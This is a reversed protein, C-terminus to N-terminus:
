TLTIELNASCYPTYALGLPNYNELLRLRMQRIADGVNYLSLLKFFGHAFFTALVEPISIETGIVGGAQCYSLTENFRLLDDPTIDVTHCGNIFVLPHVIPWDVEWGLLDSPILREGEGVGLWTKSGSRGGHCYFYIIPADIRQLGLGIAQKTSRYDISTGAQLELERRHKDVHNLKLSVAMVIGDKRGNVKLPMERQVGDSGSIKVSLPQEIIHKFGWFGSPCVVNANEHYPCGQSICQQKEIYGSQGGARLDSLFQPCVENDGTVLRQDYVLAWPFVYKASKTSSIQITSASTSLVERLGKKFSRDNKTLIESHLGYGFEALQKLDKIFNKETGRNDTGFRYPEARPGMPAGCVAQLVNRVEEVAGSLEGEGLDMEQILNTGVVFFTHTGDGKDNMAINITRPPLHEVDHLKGSLAFDVEARNGFAWKVGGVAAQVVLSQLLNQKFYIGVRLSAIREKQPTLVHFTLPRSEQPPRPLVLVQERTEFKFDSSFIVVRLPLGDESYFRTMENEPLGMANHVISREAAVGVQVTFEYWTSPKLNETPPIDRGTEAFWTNVVRRVRASAQELREKAATQFTEADTLPTTGGSEHEYDLQIMPQLSEELDTLINEVAYLTKKLDELEAPSEWAQRKELVHQISRVEAIQNVVQAEIRSATFSVRLVDSGGQAVLMAVQWDSPLEKIIFDIPNDHVIGYYLTNISKDAQMVPRQLAIISPGDPHHLRHSLELLDPFANGLDDLILLRANCRKFLSRLEKADIGLEGKKLRLVKDAKGVLGGQRILHVVDYRMNRLMRRLFECSAGRVQTSRFYRMAADTPLSETINMSEDSLILTDIPLHLPRTVVSSAKPLYRTVHLKESLFSLPPYDFIDEM